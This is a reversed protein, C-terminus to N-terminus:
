LNQIHSHDFLVRDGISLSPQQDRKPHLCYHSGQVIQEIFGHYQCGAREQITVLYCFSEEQETLWVQQGVEPGLFQCEDKYLEPSHIDLFVKPEPTNMSM